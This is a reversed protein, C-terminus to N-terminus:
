GGVVREKGSRFFDGVPESAMGFDRVVTDEIVVLEEPCVFLFGSEEKAVGVVADSPFGEVVQDFPGSVWVVFTPFEWGVYLGVVGLWVGNHWGFWEAVVFEVEFNFAEGFPYGSNDVEMGNGVADGFWGWVAGYEDDCGLLISECFIEVCLGAEDCVGRYFVGFGSIPVAYSVDDETGV